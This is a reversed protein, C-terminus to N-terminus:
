DRQNHKFYVFKPVAGSDLNCGYKQFRQTNHKLDIKDKQSHPEM